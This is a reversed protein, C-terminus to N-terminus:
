AAGMEPQALASYLLRFECLTLKIVFVPADPFKDWFEDAKAEHILKMDEFHPRLAEELGAIRAQLRAVDEDYARGKRMLEGHREDDAKREAIERQRKEAEFCPTSRTM